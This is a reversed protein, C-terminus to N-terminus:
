KLMSVIERAIIGASDPLALSAINGSLKRKQDENGLLQVAQKMMRERAENDPIYLAASRKV